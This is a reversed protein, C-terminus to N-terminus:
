VPADPSGPEGSSAPDAPAPTKAGLTGAASLPVTAGQILLRNGDPDAPRNEAARAENPRMQGTQIARGFAEIRSKLDGRMLGDLNMEFFQSTNRRGFLKANAEQEIRECWHMICHKAVMLDQQETNTFTGHTLDQLFVPPLGLIRAVEEVAFRRGEIMQGKAPDFGIPKLETGTPMYLINSGDGHAKKVAAAVDTQARAMAGPSAAAGQLSLPPVGGNAFFKSSYTQLDLALGLTDKLKEVPDVHGLGDPKPQWVIDIVESPQYFVTRGGDQYRYRKRGERREVTVGMPDLPWLNIVRGMVNREIFTIHRGRTLVTTMMLQRWSFSTVLDDNVVDHVISYLPTKRDVEKDGKEDARFIQAPLAAITEAIFNVGCWFAAVSMANDHTVVAGSASRWVRMLEAAAAASLPVSPNELSSRVETAAPAPSRPESRKFPSWM